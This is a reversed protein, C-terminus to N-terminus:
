PANIMVFAALLIAFLLVALALWVVAGMGEDEASRVTNAKRKRTPDKIEGVPEEAM